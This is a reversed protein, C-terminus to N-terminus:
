VHARGIKVLPSLALTLTPLMSLHRAMPADTSSTIWALLVALPVGLLLTVTTLWVTGWVSSLAISSSFAERYSAFVDEGSGGFTNAVLQLLPYAVFVCTIAALVLGAWGGSLSKLRQMPSTTAAQAM